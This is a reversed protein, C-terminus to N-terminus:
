SIGVNSIAIQIRYAPDGVAVNGIEEGHRTRVTLTGTCSRESGCCGDRSKNKHTGHDTVTLSRVQVSALRVPFDAACNEALIGFSTEILGLIARRIM